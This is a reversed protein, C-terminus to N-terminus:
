LGMGWRILSRLGVARNAQGAITPHVADAASTWGKADSNAKTGWSKRIDFIPCAKAVSVAYMMDVYQQQIGTNGAAGTDFPPVCLIFDGGAARVADILTNLDTQCSAVARSQRWSNVMGCDGFALDVPAGALQTLRGAHPTGTDDIMSLTTAGSIAWQRFTVEKRTDDYCDIAFISNNGSVWNLKLTHAGLAGLSVTTKKITNNGVQAINTTAGGDVQWNITAGAFFDYQYIDAKTCPQQPTFSISGASTLAVAAGGQVVASDQTGGVIALRSDRLLYDALSVGSIGYWNNAGSAISDARFKTALQEAVSLPYQTNYPVATEDVGRDTSNGMVAVNMNRTGAKMATYGALIKSTNARTVNSTYPIGGSGVLSNALGQVLRM